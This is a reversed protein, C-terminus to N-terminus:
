LVSDQRARLREGDIVRSQFHIILPFLQTGAGSAEVEWAVARKRAPLLSESVHVEVREWPLSNLLRSIIM